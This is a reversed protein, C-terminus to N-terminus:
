LILYRQACWWQHQGSTRFLRFVGFLSTGTSLTLFTTVQVGSRRSAFNWRLLEFISAFFIKLIWAVGQSLVNIIFVTTPPSFYLNGLAPNPDILAEYSYYFAFISLVLAAIAFFFEARYQRTKSSVRGRGAVPNEPQVQSQPRPSGDRSRTGETRNLLRLETSSEVARSSHRRAFNTSDLNSDM